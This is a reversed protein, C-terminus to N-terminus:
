LYYMNINIYKFIIVQLCNVYRMKVSKTYNNREFQYNAILQM